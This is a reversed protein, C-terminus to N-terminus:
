LRRAEKFAQWDKRPIILVVENQTDALSGRYKELWDVDEEHQARAIAQYIEKARL